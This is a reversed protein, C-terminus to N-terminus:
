TTPRSTMATPTAIAASSSAVRQPAAAVAGSAAPPWCEPARSALSADLHVVDTALGARFLRQHADRPWLRELLVFVLSLAGLWARYTM